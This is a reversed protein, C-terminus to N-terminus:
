CCPGCGRCICGRVCALDATNAPDECQTARIRGAIERRASGAPLARGRRPESATATHAFNM